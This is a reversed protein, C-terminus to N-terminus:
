LWLDIDEEVPERIAQRECAQVFEKVGDLRAHVEGLQERMRALRDSNAPSRGLLELDHEVARVIAGVRELDGTLRKISSKMRRKPEM